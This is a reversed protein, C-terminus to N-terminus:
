PWYDRTEVGFFSKKKMENSGTNYECSSLPGREVGIVVRLIEYFRSDIGLGKSVCGPFRVMLGCLRASSGIPARLKIIRELGLIVIIGRLRQFLHTGSIRQTYLTGTSLALLIETM